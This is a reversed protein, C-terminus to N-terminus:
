LLSSLYLIRTPRLTGEEVDEASLRYFFPAEEFITLGEARTARGRRGRIMQKM